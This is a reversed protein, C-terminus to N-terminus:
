DNAYDFLDYSEDYGIIELDEVDFDDVESDALVKVYYGKKLSDFYTNEGDEMERNFNRCWEELVEVPADTIIIMYDNSMGATFLVKRPSVEGDGPIMRGTKSFLVYDVRNEYERASDESAIRVRYVHGDFGFTHAHKPGCGYGKMVKTIFKVFSESAANEPKHAMFFYEVFDSFGCCYSVTKGDEIEEVLLVPTDEEKRFRIYCYNPKVVRVDYLMALHQSQAWCCFVEDAGEPGTYYKKFYKNLAEEDVGNELINEFIERCFAVIDDRLANGLSSLLSIRKSVTDVLEPYNSLVVEEDYKHFLGEELEWGDASFKATITGYPYRRDQPFSFLCLDKRFDFM